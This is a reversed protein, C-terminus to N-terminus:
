KSNEQQDNSITDKPKKTFFHKVNKIWLKMTFIGTLLFASIIQIMMSGTGPDIYAHATRGILVAFIIFISIKELM